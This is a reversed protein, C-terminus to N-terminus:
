SSPSDDTSSDEHRFCVSCCASRPGREHAFSHNALGFSWGCRTKWEFIPLLSISRNAVMHTKGGSTKVVFPPSSAGEGGARASSSPTRNMEALFAERHMAKMEALELKSAEHARRADMLLTRLDRIAAADKYVNSITELPVKAVYRSIVNSSWRAMLQILALPVGSRALWQAGSVRLSHGGFLRKYPMSPARNPLIVKVCTTGLAFSAWPGPILRQVRFIRLSGSSIPVSLSM